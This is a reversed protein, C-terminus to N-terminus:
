IDLMLGLSERSVRYASLIGGSEWIGDRKSQKPERQQRITTKDKGKSETKDKGETREGDKGMGESKVEEKGEEAIKKAKGAKEQLVKLVDRYTEEALQKADGSKEQSLRMLSQVDVDSLKKLAQKHLYTVENCLVSLVQVCRTAVLSM